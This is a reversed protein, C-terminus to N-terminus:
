EQQLHLDKKAEAELNAKAGEGGAAAAEVNLIENLKGVVYREM